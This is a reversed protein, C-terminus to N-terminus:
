QQEDLTKQVVDTIVKYVKAWANVAEINMTELGLVTTLVKLLSIKLNEFHEVNLKRAVHNQALKKVMEFFTDLDDLNHIMM